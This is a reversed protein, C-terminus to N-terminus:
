PGGHASSRNSDEEVFCEELVRTCVVCTEAQLSDQVNQVLPCTKCRQKGGSIENYYFVNCSSGKM